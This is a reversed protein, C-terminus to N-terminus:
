AGTPSTSSAALAATPLHLLMAQLRWTYLRGSQATPPRPRSALKPAWLQFWLRTWLHPHCHFTGSTDNGSSHAWRESTRRYSLYTCKCCLKMLLPRRCSTWPGPLSFDFQPKNPTSQKKPLKASYHLHSEPNLVAEWPFSPAWIQVQWSTFPPIASGARAECPSGLLSYMDTKECLQQCYTELTTLSMNAGWKWM